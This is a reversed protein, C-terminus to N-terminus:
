SALDEEIVLNNIIFNQREMTNKGMYFELLEKVLDTKRLSVQELRMDKGIFHKFEDPSIEGLGKFRTIEPNPGLEEIAKVREEETYCYSTKKKNRVRFLPTQLIYVHGKKILDPFFQLFFTIILLRIHMGDVDADTAVIVKNYRLTEIGDEINLAAQLLNFEENEYVVKKTLGYSNLPKGRLSFVAQTNVDRSKTISGSASDGETIFICSETEQDKGKGDSLHYRCDRLKRNHLNAKKARERALKTVGAIAKREKESDQIKQLMVEAVLPNKHLYNDVETKIFDGVYKNVTPGAPKHEQPAAPWMNNSGLKTKTQSEFMPEEVDIAIAAVLGNRIDAYEQNKNYFEKITRAIHEKLATQHTGGQTTHQGNVFSYYEEGYQNTHTFAIEIDEGKLHIIDYLGESTMNDKLLDELGHRSVIRQGNYIFTLGTNLYTYNRLLTEVFQNQFSYNLFLTADPEFFIYTGSEETSDETVDSLLTGKEFIATRVKGDRYSRVEFRSSLANVAKIGVGNLGFSKKFAKSDYKGGTNLKSVAEVLKGQPIGRGYDRVSVRLSDEITVEIRKGAGMKFEDISNDMVEKLLVYIGDDNQSGDGLRGIYMGSRVRIHEMDDLHRINDDTYEVSSVPSETINNDAEELPLTMNNNDEM